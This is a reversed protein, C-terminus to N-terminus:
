QLRPPKTGFGHSLQPRAFKLAFDFRDRKIGGFCALTLVAPISRVYQTTTRLMVLQTRTVKREGDSALYM